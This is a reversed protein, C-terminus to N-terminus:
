KEEYNRLRLLIESDQLDVKSKGPTLRIYIARPGSEMRILGREQLVDLCVRTRVFSVPRGASRAIKRSLVFFEDTLCDDISNASLYRWVAAFEKRQPILSLAEDATIAGGMMRAYIQRDREIRQRCDASPRIDTLNLQVTRSGHFENIQPTFAVEVTDGPAVAARCANASFFIAELRYGNKVFRLRLHRGGAVENMHELRLGSMHLLPRPFGSGFPELVSLSEISSVTLLEPSVTCDLELSREDPHSQRYEAAMATVACRFDDIRDRRITFGAALEHGGYNLLLPELQELASFLPFGGFSRSSAKGTDGNLTILFVPCSYEEALRSVVIGVVGQHWGDRALVIADPNQVGALMQTAEAYIGAEIGQRLRNLECLRAALGAAKEPDYTLFLEEALEVQGMRGAANIRPALTFGMVSSTIAEPQLQCEKLLALLGPRPGSRISRIGASVLTRNEGTLPMVDAVTGLAVLDSYERFILSQDGCIAAALKFAVGVGALYCLEGSCDRRHADVVAVARPLQQRCVHHDTIILDIGLAACLEAEDLATIGCDVTIILSVGAECLSRIAPENLGYGEELRAPIYWICKPTAGCRNLFDTMLCTATVGDVDYDGYVAIQEGRALALRIRDAAKQMDPLLMPDSLPGSGSHLFEGAKEPTDYGRSVLVAAVLPSLGAKVLGTVMDRDSHSINWTGYKLEICM